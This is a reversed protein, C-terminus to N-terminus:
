HLDLSGIVEKLTDASHKLLEMEEERSNSLQIFGFM